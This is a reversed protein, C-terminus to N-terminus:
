GRAFAAFNRLADIHQGVGAYGMKMTNVCLHTAGLDQWGQVYDAWSDEPQRAMTARVDIGFPEASRGAEALLDRLQAVVPRANDPSMGPPIWGAGFRAMRRLVPEAMGGFWLPIPRQVPLPNIGVDRLRHHEGEFTVLPTTWLQQLVAIQEDIRKGRTGFAFGLAEMEVRNWGVGVGLRLRGGSLVDVEAAQKAVLAAQRQPLILIGTVFELRQTIGALYGFLVMPEHFMDEAVYVFRQGPYAQRDAGLVHEYTMLYDYGLGELAHVYDRIAAPDAGIETQPFVAGLKM